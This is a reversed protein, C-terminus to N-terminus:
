QVKMGPKAGSSPELLWVRDEGVAVIMMGESLGFRMKRPKLNAVVVTLKGILEEPKYTAKIGAFIQKDVQGVDLTLKLLKDAGAVEEAHKILAVRLDIKAFEDFTILSDDEQKFEKDENTLKDKNDTINDTIPKTTAQIQKQNDELMKEVKDEDIRNFIPKFQNITHEHMPNLTQWNLEVKLFSSVKNTLDPMVPSLYTVLLKFLNLSLSCVEQVENLKDAQKSLLWPKHEDIYTNVEDALSMIIRIAKNYDRSLYLQQIGEAKAVFKDYLPSRTYIVKNEFKSNIFKAARSAINILKGILDSNVKQIFDELNLDLDEVSSNLKSAFYYRLFDPEFHNLYSRATIFTGRSKSMKQGNITLFGHAFIADPTKFNAGQLMAPWFLAHFYVIDKGIFHYLETKSDAAWFENFDLGQKDCLNKFSAIYGIPADLWVYFYKNATGPIKFGFYPEDRSIDWEKLDENFWEALKNAIQPQLKGSTIWKKLFDKYNNLKFFYHESEREIPKTGSLVSIADKLDTPSYTAGCSECNDGYQETTGCKPCTGKIFRDPLFMNQQVDFAQKITRVEIDGNDKLKTYIQEALAENEVSHTTYFNAFDIKFDKYDQLHSKYIKEVWQEPSIKHERAKLMTPTGHADSGCVYICTNGAANQARVWIDCQIAEIIHGFHLPGNAYPLASTVLIKSM